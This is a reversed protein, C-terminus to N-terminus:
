IVLGEGKAEFFVLVAENKAESPRSIDQLLSVYGSNSVWPSESSPMENAGDSLDM